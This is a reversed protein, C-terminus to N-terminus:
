PFLAGQKIGHVTRVDYAKQDQNIKKMYSRSLAKVSRDIDDCTVAPPLSDVAHTLNAAAAVAIDRHGEEHLELNRIYRQWKDVLEKSAKDTHVWKPFRYTVSVAAKFSAASCSAPGRNYDYDWTISWRTVSDYKKGDDWRCGNETMDCRIDTENDGRVEYYEYSQTVSPLVPQMGLMRSAGSDAKALNVDNGAAFATAAFQMFVLFVIKRKIM